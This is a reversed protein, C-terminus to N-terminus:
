QPLSIRGEDVLLDVTRAVFSAVPPSDDPPTGAVCDIVSHDEYAVGDIVADVEYPGM